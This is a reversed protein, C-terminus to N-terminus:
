KNKLFSQLTEVRELALEDPQKILSVLLTKWNEQRLYYKRFFNCFSSQSKIYWIKDKKKEKSFFLDWSSLM